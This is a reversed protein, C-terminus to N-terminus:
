QSRGPQGCSSLGLEGAARRAQAAARAGAASAAQAAVQDEREAARALDALSRVIAGSANVLLRHSRELEEPPELEGLAVAERRRIEGVADSYAAVAAASDGPPTVAAAERLSTECIEAAQERYAEASPGDEGGCGALGFVAFLTALRKV